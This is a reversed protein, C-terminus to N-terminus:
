RDSRALLRYNTQLVDTFLRPRISDTHQADFRVIRILFEQLHRHAILGGRAPRFCRRARSHLAIRSRSLPSQTGSEFLAESNKRYRNHPARRSHM